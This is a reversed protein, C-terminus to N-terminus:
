FIQINESVKPNTLYVELTTRAAILGARYGDNSSNQEKMFINKITLKLEDTM